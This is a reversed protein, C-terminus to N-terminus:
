LELGPGTAGREPDPEDPETGESVPEDSTGAEPAPGPGVFGSDAAGPLEPEAGPLEPEAGPWFLGPAPEAGPLEPEAGPWLLCDQRPILSDRFRQTLEDNRVSTQPEAQQEAVV